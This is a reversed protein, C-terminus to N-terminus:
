GTGSASATPSASAIRAAPRSPTTAPSGAPRSVGRPWSNEPPADIEGAALPLAAGQRASYWGAGNTTSSSGASASSGSASAPNYRRNRASTAPRVATM